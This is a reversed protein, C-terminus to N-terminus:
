RMPNWTEKQSVLEQMLEAIVENKQQLKEELKDIKQKGPDQKQKRKKEFAAEGNEFFETQWQYFQSPQINFEECLDSVKGGELLHKKLIAVKEAAQFNKRRKRKPSNQNRTSDNMNM